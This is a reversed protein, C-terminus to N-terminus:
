TVRVAAGFTKGGEGRFQMLPNVYTMVVIPIPSRSRIEAIMALAHAPTTGRRLAAESTHQIVPGDAVPDSFPIGIEIVDAGVEALAVAVGVTTAPDPFGATLFPVFAGRGSSRRAQIAQEIRSM